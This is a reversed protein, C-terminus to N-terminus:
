EKGSNDSVQIDHLLGKLERLDIPKKLFYRAGLNLCEVIAEFDRYASMMIVPMYPYHKRLWKLFEVGDRNDLDSESLRIDVLAAKFKEIRLQARAVETTNACSIDWESSLARQLARLYDEQDDLVLIRVKPQPQAMRM